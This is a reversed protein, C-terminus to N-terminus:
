GKVDIASRRLNVRVWGATPQGFTTAPEFHTFLLSSELQRRIAATNFQQSGEPFAYDIVRGRGDVFVDLALEDTGVVFQLSSKVTAGTFLMTPVDNAHARVLGQFNPMVMSFLLVASVLGGAAPLALPRMLGNLRFWALDGWARCAALLGQYRRRRAAARSAGVRLSMRLMPPVRRVPLSKVAARVELLQGFHCACSPCADLHAMAERREAEILHGDALNSLVSRVQSCVM